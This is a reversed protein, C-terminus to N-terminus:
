GESFIWAALVLWAAMSAACFLVWWATHKGLERRVFFGYILPSLPFMAANALGWVVSKRFGAIVGWMWGSGNLLLVVPLAVLLGIRPGTFWGVLMKLVELGNEMTDGTHEGALQARVSEHRKTVFFKLAHVHGPSPTEAISKELADAAKPGNVDIVPRLFTAGRDIQSLMKDRASVTGLYEGLLERYRRRHRPIKLVREILAHEGTQPHEISLNRRSQPTGGMDQAGFSIDLDWPLFHFQNSKPELYIYYNQSGGLFSDLNSLLVNVALFRLFQEADVYNDFEEAFDEDSGKNVLRTFDIVRRQQMETATTKPVYAKKYAAWEEGLYRLVRFTSPKLLLGKSDGYRNKLFRKDVQEVITYLGLVKSRQPGIQLSVRAFGTRSCFVGAERFLEYSLAERLMSPDSLSNNLNLKKLGRFLVGKRYESFDLKFSYKGTRYGGIFSGNGKFRIGIGIMTVGDIVADGQGYQHDVGLYGALGRRSSKESHFDGGLIADVIVGGFARGVAADDLRTGAPPQLKAWEENSLRLNVDIVRDMGFLTGADSVAKPDATTAGAGDAVSRQPRALPDERRASDRPEQARGTHGVVPCIALLVWAVVSGVVRPTLQSLSRARCLCHSDACFLYMVGDDQTVAQSDLLSSRSGLLGAM